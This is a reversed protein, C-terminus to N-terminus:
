IRIGLPASKDEEQGAKFLRTPAVLVPIDGFIGEGTLGELFSTFFTRISM